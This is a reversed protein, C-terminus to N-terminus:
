GNGLDPGRFREYAILQESLKNIVDLAESQTIFQKGWHPNDFQIMPVEVVDRGEPDEAASKPIDM